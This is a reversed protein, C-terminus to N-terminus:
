HHQSKKHHKTTSKEHNTASAPHRTTTKPPTATPVPGVPVQAYVKDHSVVPIQETLPAAKAYVFTITVFIGPTLTKATGTVRIHGTSAFQVSQQPPLVIPAHTLNTVTLAKGNAGQVAVKTLKDPKSTQNVLASVLTGHGSDDAVILSDIAYIQGTRNSIGDAPQYPQNTQAGFSASCGALLPASCLAAAAALRAVRGPRSTAGFPTSRTASGPRRLLRTKTM